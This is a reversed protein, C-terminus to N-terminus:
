GGRKLADFASRLDGEPTSRGFVGPQVGWADAERREQAEVAAAVNPHNAIDNAHCAM